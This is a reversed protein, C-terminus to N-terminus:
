ESSEAEPEVRIEEPDGPNMSWSLFRAIVPFGTLNAILQLQKKQYTPSPAKDMTTYAVEEGNKELLVLYM